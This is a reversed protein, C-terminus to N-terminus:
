RGISHPRRIHVCLQPDADGASAAKTVTVTNAAKATVIWLSTRADALLPTLIVQPFGLALDAASIAMNHTIVVSLAAGADEIINANCSDAQGQLPTPGVLGAVPYEYNLVVAM